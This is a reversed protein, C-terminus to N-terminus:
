MGLTYVVLKDQKTNLVKALSIFQKKSTTHKQLYKVVSFKAEEKCGKNFYV